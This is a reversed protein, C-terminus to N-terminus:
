ASVGLSGAAERTLGLLANEVARRATERAADDADAPVRIPPGYHVRVRAGPWPLVFGDWSRFVHAPRAALGAPVIAFGTAEALRVIGPQAVRAPGKPGDPTIALRRWGEKTLDIMRRFAEGGGRTTSGRVALISRREVIRAILEGDGHRSIMAATPVGDHVLAALLLHGHWFGYILGGTEREAEALREGGVVSVRVSADLAGVVAGALGALWRKPEAV